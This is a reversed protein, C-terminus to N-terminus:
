RGGLLSTANSAQTRIVLGTSGAIGPAGGNGGSAGGASGNVIPVGTGNTAGGGGGQRFLQGDPIDSTSAANPSIIRILGGGGGGGGVHTGGGALGAAGAGGVVTIFSPSHLVVNGESALLIVGGGGGGCGPSSGAGGLAVISGNIGFSIGGKAYITLSAGGGGGSCGAAAGGAAGGRVGPTLHLLSGLSAPDAATGANVSSAATLAIGPGGDGGTVSPMFVASGLTVTGSARLTIGSPLNWNDTVDIDTFQYNGSLAVAPPSSGTWDNNSADIHLPGASGDGWV